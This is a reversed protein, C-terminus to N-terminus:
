TEKHHICGFNIGTDFVDALHEDFDSGDEYAIIDANPTKMRYFENLAECASYEPKDTLAKINAEWYKCTKCTNKM